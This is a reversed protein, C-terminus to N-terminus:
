HVRHIHYIINLSNKQAKLFILIITHMHESFKYSLKYSIINYKNILYIFFMEMM